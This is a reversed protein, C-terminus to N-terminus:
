KMQYHILLDPDVGNKLLYDRYYKEYRNTVQGYNEVMANPNQYVYAGSNKIEDLSIYKEGNKLPYRLHELRLPNNPIGETNPPIEKVYYWDTDIWEDGDNAYMDYPNAPNDYYPSSPDYLGYEVQGRVQSIPAELKAIDDENIRTQFFEEEGSTYIALCKLPSDPIYVGVIELKQDPKYVKPYVLYTPYIEPEHLIDLRTSDVKSEREKKDSVSGLFIDLSDGAKAPSGTDFFRDIELIQNCLKDFDDVAQKNPFAPDFVLNREKVVRYFTFFVLHFSFFQEPHNRKLFIREKTRDIYGNLYKSVGIDMWINYPSWNDFDEKFKQKNIEDFKLLLTKLELLLAKLKEGMEVDCTRYLTWCALQYYPNLLYKYENQINGKKKFFDFIM